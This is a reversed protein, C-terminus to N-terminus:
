RPQPFQVRMAADWARDPLLRRQFVTLRASPTVLVRSPARRRTIAKEIAKAVVDPGGGLRRM